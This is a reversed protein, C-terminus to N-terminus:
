KVKMKRYQAIAYVDNLQQDSTIDLVVPFFRQSKGMSKANIIIEKTEQSLPLNQLEYQVGTSFYFSVKFFGDWISLWFIPKIKNAGRPTTWKYEGKSLWAKSDNYFRWDMLTIGYLEELERIFKTYATYAVGLGEAIVESNPEIDPNRLLQQADTKGNM